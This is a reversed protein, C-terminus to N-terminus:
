QLQGLIEQVQPIILKEGSNDIVFDAHYLREEDSLQKSIRAQVEEATVGDRKMVREVRTDVPCTVVAIKDCQKYAGSEILIAAEKILIESDQESAWHDFDRGVAPHVLANLQALAEEDHFVKSALYERNLKGDLYAEEGFNAQINSILNPESNMLFKARDDSNYVPIGFLQFIECVTSKGSGIGGTLGIKLMNDQGM